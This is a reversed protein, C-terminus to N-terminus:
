ESTENFIKLWESPLVILAASIGQLDERKDLIRRDATIFYGGYKGAEFVHTADAAFKDPNGNGTLIKHIRTKREIEVETLTTKITYILEGAEKKVDTPTNPHDVEKQNSHTLTLNVRGDRGLSRIEQAAEHEPSYKPDFACTDM